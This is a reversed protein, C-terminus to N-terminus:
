NGSPNFMHRAYNYGIAEYRKVMVEAKKRFLAYDRPAISWAAESFADLRPLLMYQLHSFDPVYETWLCCQVGLIHKLQEKSFDKGPNLGYAQEVSLCGNNGMHAVPESDHDYSQYYDFYCHAGPCMIVDNGCEIVQSTRRNGYRSMVTATPSLGGDYIEDWGIIKRGRSEVFKEIRKMVYSQLEKEDKLGEDHIRAQCSDCAEWSEKRCEDGGIHIYESPFLEMVEDLVGELFEFTSEKGACYVDKSIGWKCWVKYGEGKCGLWPYSALAASSHGPMEIEPIVTIFRDGAYDIIERIDDRTYYGCYPTNDPTLTRKVTTYPRYSGINILEPYKKIEIRWGQDDTLHWHFTNIKHMALLDLLEKIQAVTFFHRSVDLMMGRYAFAPEDRVTCCPLAIGSVDKLTKMDAPCLQVLSQCAYFAGAPGGAKISIREPSIELCYAEPGTETDLSVSIGRRGCGNKVKLPKGFVSSFERNLFDAVPGLDETESCLYIHTNGTIIFEGQTQTLSAPQPIISIGDSSRRIDRSNCVFSMASLFILISFFKKM